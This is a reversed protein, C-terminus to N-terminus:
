RGPCESPTQNVTLDLALGTRSRPEERFILATCHEAEIEFDIFYNQGATPSITSRPNCSTSVGGYVYNYYNSGITVPKGAPIETYGTSDARLRQRQGAICIWKSGASKVNLKAVPTNPPTHYDSVTGCGATLALLATGILHQGHKM